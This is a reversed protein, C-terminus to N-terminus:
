PAIGVDYDYEYEGDEGQKGLMSHAWERYESSPEAATSFRYESFGDDWRALRVEVPTGKLIRAVQDLVWTKHHDGDIGGYAEIFRMAWATPTFGEYPTGVLSTLTEEGLFKRQTM